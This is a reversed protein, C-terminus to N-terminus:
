RRDMQGNRIDEASINEASITGTTISDVLDQHEEVWKRAMREAREDAEHAMVMLSYAIVLLIAIVMLLVFLIWKM